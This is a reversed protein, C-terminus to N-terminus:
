GRTYIGKPNQESWLTLDVKGAADKEMSQLMSKLHLLKGECNSSSGLYVTLRNELVFKLDLSDTVDLATCTFGNQTLKAMLTQALNALEPKEFQLQLGPKGVKATAGAVTVTNEAAHDQVVLIKGTKDTIYYNNEVKYSLAPVAETVKLVITGPLKRGVSVTSVWPLKQTINKEANGGSLFLNKGTQIGSAAIVEQASYRVKGSVSIKQVPFLVTLCLAVGAALLLFLLIVTLRIKAARAKKRRKAARAKKLDVTKPSQSM